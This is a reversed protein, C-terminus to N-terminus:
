GKRFEVGTMKGDEGRLMKTIRRGDAMKGSRSRDRRKERSGDMEEWRKSERM